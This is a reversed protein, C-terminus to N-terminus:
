QSRTDRGRQGIVRLRTFLSEVWDGEDNEAVYSIWVDGGPETQALLQPSIYLDEGESYDFYMTAIRRGDRGYSCWMPWLYKPEPFVIRLGPEAVAAPNFEGNPADPVTVPPNSLYNYSVQVEIEPSSEDSAAVTYSLKLLRGSNDPTNELVRAKPVLFDVSAGIASVYGSARYETEGRWLLEIRQHLFMGGFAPIRVTAGRNDIAGPQLISSAPDVEVFFPASLVSSRASKRRGSLARPYRRGFEAIKEQDM